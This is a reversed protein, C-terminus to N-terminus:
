TTKTQEIHSYTSTVHRFTQHCRISCSSSGANETSLVPSPYLISTPTKRSARSVDEPPECMSHMMIYIYIDYINIYIM